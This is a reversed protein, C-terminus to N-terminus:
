AGTDCRRVGGGGWAHRSAVFFSFLPRRFSFLRQHRRRFGGRAVYRVDGGERVWPLPPPSTNQSVRFHDVLFILPSEYHGFLSSPLLDFSFFVRGYAM